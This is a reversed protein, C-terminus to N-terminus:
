PRWAENYDEHDAYPLALLRLTTCGYPRGEYDGPIDCVSCWKPQVQRHLAVIERKATVEALIRDPDYRAVHRSTVSAMATASSACSWLDGGPSNVVGYGERGQHADNGGEDRADAKWPGPDTEDTAKALDADEDLRACLFQVLDDV